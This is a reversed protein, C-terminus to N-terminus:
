PKHILIYKDKDKKYIWAEDLRLEQRKALEFGGYLESYIKKFNVKKPRSKLRALNHVIVTGDDLFNIYLPTKDEYMYDLLMDALKHSEIYLTDATYTKASLTLDDNLRMRRQKLEINIIQHNTIGSADTAYYEPTKGLDKLKLKENFELLLKFDDLEKRDAYERNM